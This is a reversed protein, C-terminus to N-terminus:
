GRRGPTTRYVNEVLVGLLAVLLVLAREGPALPLRPLLLAAVLNGGASSGAAIDAPESCSCITSSCREDCSSSRLGLGVSSSTRQARDPLRHRHM